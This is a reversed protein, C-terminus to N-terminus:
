PGSNLRMLTRPSRTSMLVPYQRACANFDASRALTRSVVTMSVRLQPQVRLVTLVDNPGTLRGTISRGPGAFGASFRVTQHCPGSQETARRSKPEAASRRAKIGTTVRYALTDPHTRHIVVANYHVGPILHFRVSTM